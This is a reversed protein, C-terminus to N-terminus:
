IKKEHWCIICSPFALTHKPEDRGQRDPHRAPPGELDSPDFLEKGAQVANPNIESAPHVNENLAPDVKKGNYDLTSQFVFDSMDRCKVMASPGEVKSQLNVRLTLIDQAPIWPM